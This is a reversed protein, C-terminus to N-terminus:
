KNSMKRNTSITWVTQRILIGIIKLQQGATSSITSLHRSIVFIEFRFSNGTACSQLVFIQECNATMTRFKTCFFGFEQVSITWDDNPQNKEFKNAEFASQFLNARQITHTHTSTKKQRQIPGHEFKM